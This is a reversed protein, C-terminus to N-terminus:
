FTWFTNLFSYAHYLLSILLITFCVSPFLLFIGIINDARIRAKPTFETHRYREALAFSLATSALGLAVLALSTSFTM